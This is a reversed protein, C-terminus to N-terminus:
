WLGGDSIPMLVFLAEGSSFKTAGGLRFETMKAESGSGLRETAFSKRQRRPAFNSFKAEGFFYFFKVAAFVYCRL